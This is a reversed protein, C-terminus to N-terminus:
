WGTPDEPVYNAIVITSALLMGGLDAAQAGPQGLRHTEVRGLSLGRGSRRGLRWTPLM